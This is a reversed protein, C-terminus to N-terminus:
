EIGILRYSGAPLPITTTIRVQTASIAQLQVYLVDFNDANDLLQWQATRADTIEASVTVDKTLDTGNFVQDEAFKAVGLVKIALGTDIYAKNNDTAFLLRGTNQASSAPLSGSTTNELRLGIFEGKSYMNRFNHTPDGLDTGSWGGSFSADTEPSMNSRLFISGKTANSTSDLTLNESALNSGQLVQGGARGALLAYQTHDDDALGTLTGHDIESDPASALWVSGNYFLGDGSQAPQTQAVDRFLTHRLGLLTAMTITNTGDGLVGKLFLDKYTLSTSGLDLTNDGNPLVSKQVEITGTGNPALVLSTNVGITSITSADLRINDIDIEGTVGLNGTVVQALTNMTKQVDVVGTGDPVLLINGNTNTSSITNGDLRLNDVDLQTSTLAGVNFTGTTFLNSAGFDIAGLSSTITARSAGGDPDFILTQANDTLTTVGAGLTGSTLLNAAGFSIAGTTDTITGPVLTMTDSTDDAVLSTGTVTAGSINGTTILNEDGFSIQGSSDTISGDALTLTTLFLSGAFYADKWRLATTSLDYTNHLTPRFESDIQVFGTQPGTGDGSNANLTLNQGAVNGGYILQGAYLGTVANGGSDLDTKGKSFMYRDDTVDTMAALIADTSWDVDFIKYWLPSVDGERQEWRYGASKGDGDDDVVRYDGITPTVDGPNPTNPGTPLDGPTAVNPQTAPYLVALIYNLASNVNTVGPLAPNSYAFDNLNHKFPHQAQTFVAFRQARDFIGM